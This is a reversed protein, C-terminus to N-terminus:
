LRGLQWAVVCTHFNGVQENRIREGDMKRGIIVTGWWSTGQRSADPIWNEYEGLHEAGIYKEDEKTWQQLEVEEKKRIEDRAAKRAEWAKEAKERALFQELRYAVVSDAIKQRHAADEQCYTAKDRVFEPAIKM